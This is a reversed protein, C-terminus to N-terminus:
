ATCTAPRRGHVARDRDARPGAHLGRGRRGCRPERPGRPARRADGADVDPPGQGRHRGQPRVRARGARRRDARLRGEQVQAHLRDRVRDPGAPGRRGPRDRRADGRAAGRLRRGQGRVQGARSGPRRGRGRDRDPAGRPGQLRGRDGPPVPADALEAADSRAPPRAQVRRWRLLKELMGGIRGIASDRKTEDFLEDVMSRLAGRDGLFKELTRPLRGDGDAFNARLTQELAAAARENVQEAQRVMREFESRVADVNVTVGADQLAILGIRLAREVLPGRDGAPREGLFAALTPDSLSLREVVIRDGELRVASHLPVIVAEMPAVYSGGTVDLNDRSRVPPPTPHARIGFTARADSARDRRDLASVAATRTSQGPESATGAPTAAASGGAGPRPRPARGSDLRCSWAGLARADGALVTQRGDPRAGVASGLDHDGLTARGRGGSALQLVVRADSATASLWRRSSNSSMVSSGYKPSSQPRCLVPWRISPSRTWVPVASMSM